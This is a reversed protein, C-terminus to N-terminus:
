AGALEGALESGVNPSWGAVALIVSAKRVGVGQMLTTQCTPLDTLWSLGAAAHLAM